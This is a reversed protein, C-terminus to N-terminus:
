RAGKLALARRYLARREVGLAAAVEAAAKAPSLRSLAERLAQEADAESAAEGAPPGIVVVIEGKPNALPPLAALADLPGRYATEHLKTLERAVVAPRPGFV